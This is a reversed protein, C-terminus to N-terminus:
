SLAHILEQYTALMGVILGFPDRLPVYLIVWDKNLTKTLGQFTKGEELVRRTIMENATTDLARASDGDATANTSVRRNGLFITCGFGTEAKVADVLATDGNLLREGAFLQDATVRIPGERRLLFHILTMSGRLGDFHPADAPIWPTEPTACLHNVRQACALLAACLHNLYPPLLDHSFPSRLLKREALRCASRAAYLAAGAPSGSPLCLHKVSGVALTWSAAHHDLAKIFDRTPRLLPTPALTDDLATLDLEFSLLHRQIDTLAADIPRLSPTTPLAARAVGLASNLSEVRSAVALRAHEQTHTSPHIEHM